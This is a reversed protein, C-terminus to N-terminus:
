AETEIQDDAGHAVAEAQRVISPGTAAPAGTRTLVALERALAEQQVRARELREHLESLRTERIAASTPAQDQRSATMSPSMNRAHSQTSGLGNMGGMTGVEGMGRMMSLMSLPCALVALVPLASLFVHPAVVWIGAAVVALGAVVKWNLCIAGLRM